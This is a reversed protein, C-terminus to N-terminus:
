KNETLKIKWMGRLDGMAYGTAKDGPYKRSILERTSEAIDTRGGHCKLCTPMAVMIPKYYYLEGYESQEVFAKKGSKIKDWAQKDAQTILGNEPNRNKDSLRQVSVKRHTSISDTLLMANLNCFEVAHDAGGKQISATLNQLLLAQAETAISDGLEAWTAKEEESLTKHGSNCASLVIILILFGIRYKM